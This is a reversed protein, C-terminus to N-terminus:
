VGYFHARSVDVVALVLIRGRKGVRETMVLSVLAKVSEVSTANCFVCRETRAELNPKRSRRVTTSQDKRGQKESGMETLLRATGRLRKRSRLWLAEAEVGLRNGRKKRVQVEKM